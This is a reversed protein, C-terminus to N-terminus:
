GDSRPFVQGPDGLFIRHETFTNNVDINQVSNIGGPQNWLSQAQGNGVSVAIHNPYEQTITGEKDAPVYYLLRGPGPPQSSQLPGEERRYEENMTFGLQRWTEFDPMASESELVKYLNDYVQEDTVQDLCYLGLLVSEWCNLTQQTPGANLFHQMGRTNDSMMCRKMLEAYFGNMGPTRWEFSGDMLTVSVALTHRLGKGPTGRELNGRIGNMLQRDKLADLREERRVEPNKITRLCEQLMERNPDPTNNESHSKVLEVLKDKLPM